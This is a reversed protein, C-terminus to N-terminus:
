FRDCVHGDVLIPTLAAGLLELNQRSEGLTIRSLRTRRALRRLSADQDRAEGEGAACAGGRQRIKGALRATAAAAAAARAGASGGVLPRAAQKERDRVPDVGSAVHFHAAAVEDIQSMAM